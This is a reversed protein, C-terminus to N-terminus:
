GHRWGRGMRGFMYRDALTKQEPTLVAYLGDRATALEKAAERNHAFHGDRVEARAEPPASTMQSRFQEHALAERKVLEAYANWAAEQDPTVKLASKLDALRADAGAQSMMGMGGWGGGPGGRMGAAWGGGACNESGPGYGAGPGRGAPPDALAAGVALAVAGAAVINLIRKM